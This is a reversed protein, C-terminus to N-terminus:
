TAYRPEVLCWQWQLLLAPYRRPTSAWHETVAEQKAVHTAESRSACLSVAVLCAESEHGTGSVYNRLESGPVDFWVCISETTLRLM